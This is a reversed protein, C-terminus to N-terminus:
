HTLLIHLTDILMSRTAASSFGRHVRYHDLAELECLADLAAVRTRRASASLAGLEPAFHKEIQIRLARRTVEVQDRM